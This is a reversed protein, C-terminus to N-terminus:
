ASILTSIMAPQEQAIVQRIHNWADDSTHMFKVTEFHALKFITEAVARVFPRTGVMLVQGGYAHSFAPAGLRATFIGPPVQQAHTMDMLTHVPHQVRNRHALDRPYLSTLDSTKWPDSFLYYMVHGNERVDLKVPM